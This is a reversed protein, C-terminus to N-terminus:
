WRRLAPGLAALTDIVASARTAEPWRAQALGWPGRRLFVARMGADAAPAVDNDVRDGVYAIQEPPCRAHQVVLDFFRASPKEVGWRESSVIIHAPVSLDRLVQETRVPQNGALGILRGSRHLDQLCPLADPYLDDRRYEGALGAARKRGEEAAIDVGPAVLEFVRSHHERREIVQGLVAFFTLRPVQLWDAWTGWAYTEDILTEGIDFFVAKIM